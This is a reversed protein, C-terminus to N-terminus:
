IEPSKLRLRTLGGELSEKWARPGCGRAGSLKQFTPSARAATPSPAHSRASRSESLCLTDAGFGGGAGPSADPSPQPTPPHPSPLGPAGSDASLGPRGAAEAGGARGRSPPTVLSRETCARLAGLGQEGALMLPPSRLAPPAPPPRTGRLWGVAAPWGLTAERSSPGLGRLLSAVDCGSSVPRGPPSPLLM